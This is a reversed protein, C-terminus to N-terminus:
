EESLSSDVSKLVDHMRFFVIMAECFMRWILNGLTLYLLGNVVSGGGYVTTKGFMISLGYATLGLAGLVYIVKIFPGTIFMRFTFYDALWSEAIHAQEQAKKESASVENVDDKKEEETMSGGIAFFGARSFRQVRVSDYACLVRVDLASVL